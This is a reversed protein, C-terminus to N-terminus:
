PIKEYLGYVFPNGDRVEVIFDDILVTNKGKNWVLVKLQLNKFDLNMDSLKLSHCVSIWENLDVGANVFSKFDAGSFHVVGDESELTTILLLETVKHEKKIRVSVDIFNNEHSIMPRVPAAFAPSWETLSDMRYSFSDNFGKTGVIKENNISGWGEPPPVNFGYRTIIKREDEGSKSFLYTSGLFYNNKLQVVPFYQRIIPITNPKISALAGLYLFDYTKSKESLFHTLEAENTFSDFWIFASDAKHKEIYYRTIKKHSDIVSIINRNTEKVNIYDTVIREFSSNYLLSYHKRESILTYSNVLLIILVLALNINVKQNPIHGFLLFLLPYFSFILVSYQLVPNIKVSYWFGILLPILFWASFLLYLQPKIKSKKIYFLGFVILGTALFVVLLSYNFIYYIYDLLFSNEPKALWGGIGGTKFQTMFIGLHPIYLIFILVGCLVYRLMFKRPIIFIGSIGVLAAFLLSFHHNYACLASALVYPLANKWFNKIHPNMLRSWYFVMLLSFFLGSIYPRAIQSYMITYQISALFAASILGVTENYWKRGALYVLLVSFLGMLTFPLKVIWETNGFLKIWYYLFVQIGAPHGDPKVGKEILEQFSLFNTRFVASFEDHMFSIDTFRYFRLIAAVCLILLFIARNSLRM